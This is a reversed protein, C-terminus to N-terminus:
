CNEVEWTVNRGNKGQSSPRDLAKLAEANGNDAAVRYWYCAQIGDKPVGFGQEYLNGLQFQAGHHGGLAAKRIFPEALDYRKLQIQQLGAQYDGELANKDLSYALLREANSPEPTDSGEQGAMKFVTFAAIVGLSLFLIYKRSLSPNAM